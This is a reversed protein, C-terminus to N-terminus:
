HDDLKKLGARAEMKISNKYEEGKYKLARKFSMRANDDDGIQAYIHGLNLLSNGWFYFQEAEELLVVKKFYEIALDIKSLEQYNRAYRYLFESEEELTTTSSWDQSALVELSQEYYGGDFLIRSKFLTMNPKYDHNIRQYAYKDTGTKLSGMNLVNAKYLNHEGDPINFLSSLNFLKYYSDKIFEDANPKKLYLNYLYAAKNYNLEKLFSEARYYNIIPIQLYNRDYNLCNDFHKIALKNNRNKISVLGYLYNYLLSNDFNRSNSNLIHEAQIPQNSYFSISLAYILIGERYFISNSESLEKLNNIGGTIDPQVMMMNLIWNYQDPFLSVIVNLLGITKLHYKNGPYKKEHNNIQRFAQLLNLAGSIRDGYKIKVLGRHVKLEIKLYSIFPNDKSLKDLRGFHKKEDRLYIKFKDENKVLLLELVSKLNRIYIQFGQNDPTQFEKSNIIPYEKRLKLDLIDNYAQILNAELIQASLPSNSFFM